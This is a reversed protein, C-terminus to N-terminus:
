SLVKINLINKTNKDIKTKNSARQGIIWIINEKSILLWINDKEFQNLKNNIFFDSLKQKMKMGFPTFYDGNQYKRIILPFVIKDLDFYAEDKHLKFSKIETIDLVKVDFTLPFELKALDSISDITFIPNEANESIPKILLSFNKRSAIHTNSYFNRTEGSDIYTFINRVTQINFNYKSLFHFLLTESNEIKTKFSLDIEVYEIHDTIYNLFQNEVLEKFLLIDNNIRNLNEAMQPTFGPFQKEIAPIINHRIKNRVYDNTKNTSDERFEINHENSFETIQDRTAFLIPRCFPNTDAIIAKLGNIGTGRITNIFFTEINDNLHHALCIKSFNNEDFIQKMWEIRQNRAAMQTSISNEKAFIKTNFKKTFIPINLNKALQTVFIEDQDSEEGRLQFNCHAISCNYNLSTLIHILVVSDIGGSVGVLLNDNTNFLLNQTIFESTQQLLM